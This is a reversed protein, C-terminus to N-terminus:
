QPTESYCALARLCAHLHANGGASPLLTGPLRLAYRLGAQEADLVARTLQSLKWEVDRSALASWDLLVSAGQQSSFQKTMLGRERALSKWDIHRPADGPRYDRLGAFDDSGSGGEREGELSYQAVRQAAVGDGPNPYVLAEGGPAVYCWANFLGLPYRTSVVLREVRYIGRQHTDVSLGFIRQEGDAPLDDIALQGDLQLQIAFRPAGDVSHLRFRLALPHGCFAPQCHLAEVRVGRLNRWTQYMANAGLGVLTFTLLYAPQNDYNLAGILMLGVLVAFMLGYRTPLIYIRRGGVLVQGSANGREARM